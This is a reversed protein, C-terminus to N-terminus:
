GLAIAWGGAVTWGGRCVAAEPLFLRCSALRSLKVNAAPYRDLRSDALFDRSRTGSLAGTMDPGDWRARGKGADSAALVPV